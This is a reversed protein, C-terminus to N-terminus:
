IQITGTTHFHQLADFLSLGIEGTLSCTTMDGNDVFGPWGVMSFVSAMIMMYAGPDGSLTIGFGGDEAILTVSKAVNEVELTWATPVSIENNDNPFTM